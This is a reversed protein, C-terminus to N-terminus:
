QPPKKSDPMVESDATRDFLEEMSDVAGSNTTLLNFKSKLGPRLGRLANQYHNKNDHRLWGAARRNAKIGNGYVRVLDNVGQQFNAICMMVANLKWAKNDYMNHMQEMFAKFDAWCADSERRLDQLLEVLDTMQTETQAPDPHINLEVSADVQTTSHTRAYAITSRHYRTNLCTADVYPQDIVLPVLKLLHLDFWLGQCLSIRVELWSLVEGPRSDRWNWVFCFVFCFLLWDFLTCRRAVFTGLWDIQTGISNSIGNGIGIKIANGHGIRLTGLGNWIDNGIGIGLSNGLGNGLGIGILGMAALQMLVAPKPLQKTFCDALMEATPIYSLDIEGDRARDAALDYM